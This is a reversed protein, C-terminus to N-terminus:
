CEENNREHISLSSRDKRSSTAVPHDERASAQSIRSAAASRPRSEASRKSRGSSRGIDRDAHWSEPRPRCRRRHPWGAGRRPSPGAGPDRIPEAINKLAQEGMPEFAIPLKGKVQDHATASVCIGGPAALGEVRAAINVGEGYIREGEVIVDGVNVGIRFRMRRHEPRAANRAELETQIAMACRVADVVSSLEALVNDGPSDVVRGRHDRIVSTIVDRYTTLTRVTDEEDGGMLRSYSHVDASLLAALRRQM